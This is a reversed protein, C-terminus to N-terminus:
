TRQSTAFCVPAARGAPQWYGGERARAVGKDTLRFVKRGRQASRADDDHRPPGRKSVLKPAAAELM